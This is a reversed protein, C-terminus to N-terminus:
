TWCEGSRSIQKPKWTLEASVHTHTGHKRASREFAHRKDINLMSERSVRFWPVRAELLLDAMCLLCDTYRTKANARAAAAEPTRMVEARDSSAAFRASSRCAM